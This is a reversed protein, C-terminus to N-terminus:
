SQEGEQKRGAVRDGEPIPYTGDFDPPKAAPQRCAICWWQDFVLVATKHCHYCVVHVM